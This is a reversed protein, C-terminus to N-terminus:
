SHAWVALDAMRHQAAAIQLARARPQPHM